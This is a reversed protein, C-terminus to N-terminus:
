MYLSYQYMIADNMMMPIPIAKPIIVTKGSIILRALYIVILVEIKLQTHTATRYQDNM